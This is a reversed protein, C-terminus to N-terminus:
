SRRFANQFDGFYFSINLIKPHVFKLGQIEPMNKQYQDKESAYIVFALRKLLQAKQEAEQERSTFLGSSQPYTVKVIVDKFMSRDNSMLNDIIVKCHSLTAADVYFYPTDFLMEFVEKKWTKRTYQYATLSMLLQSAARFNDKNAVSHTKLYPWVNAMINTLLPVVLRDKEDSKYVIDLTKAM